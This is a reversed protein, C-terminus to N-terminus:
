CRVGYSGVSEASLRLTRLWECIFIFRDTGLLRWQVVHVLERFHMSESKSQTPKLFFTDIYTVGEFNGREFDAFQALGVSSLPPMPLPDVLVIKTSTLTEETFYLPLRRFGCSAVTEAAGMSATLTTQIWGLLPPYFKAFEEPTV